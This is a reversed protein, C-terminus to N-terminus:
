DEEAGIARPPQQRKQREELIQSASARLRAVLPPEPTPSDAPKGRRRSAVETFYSIANAAEAFKPTRDLIQSASLTKATGRMISGLTFFPMIAHDWEIEPALPNTPNSSIAFHALAHRKKYLKRFKNSGRAWTEAELPTLAEEAMLADIISLRADFNIVADFITHAKPNLRNDRVDQIGSLVAFLMALQVEVNSWAALADFIAM